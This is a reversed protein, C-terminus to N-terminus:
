LVVSPPLGPGVFQRLPAPLVPAPGPGSPPPLVSELPPGPGWQAPRVRLAAQYLRAPDLGESRALDLLAQVALVNVSKPMAALLRAM